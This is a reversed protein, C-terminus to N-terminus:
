EKIFKGAFVSGQRDTIFYNYVGNSLNSINISSLNSKLDQEFIVKGVMDTMRIRGNSLNHKIYIIQTGPNPYVTVEETNIEIASLSQQLTLRKLYDNELSLISTNNSHNNSKYVGVNNCTKLDDYFAGPSIYANLSRAKFVAGGEVYPCQPALNGIFEKDEVKLSDLGYRVVKLYIRTIERENYDQQETPDINENEQEADLLSQERIAPNSNTFNNILDRLKQEAEHEQAIASSQMANYFAILTPHSNKFNPNQDLFSFLKKSDYWHMIEPFEPYIKTNTAIALAEDLSFDLEDNSVYNVCNGNLYVTAGPNPSIDYQCNDQAGSLINVSKSETYLINNTFIEDGPLLNECFKFVKAAPTVGTFQNNNENGNDGVDGLTGEDGLHRMVWGLVGREEVHEGRRCTSSFIFFTRQVEPIAQISDPAKM